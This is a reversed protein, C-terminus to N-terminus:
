FFGHCDQEFVTEEERLVFTLRHQERIVGMTIPHYIVGRYAITSLVNSSSFQTMKIYTKFQTNKLDGGGLLSRLGGLLDGIRLRLRDGIRLGPRERELDM